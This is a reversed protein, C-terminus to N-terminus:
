SSSWPRLTKGRTGSGLCVLNAWRGLAKPLPRPPPGPAPDPIVGADSSPLSLIGVDNFGPSGGQSPFKLPCSSAKDELARQGNIARRVDRMEGQMDSMLRTMYDSVGPGSSPMSFHFGSNGREKRCKTGDVLQSWALADFPNPVPTCSSYVVLYLDPQSAKLEEPSSPLKPLWVSPQGAVKVLEGLMPKLKKALDTRAVAPMDRTAEMGRTACLMALNLVKYTPESARRLGLAVATKLIGIGNQSCHSSEWVMKPVYDVIATFDQASGTNHAGGRIPAPPAETSARTQTLLPAVREILTEEMDSPLGSSKLSHIVAAADKGKPHIKDLLLLLEKTESQLVQEHGRLGRTGALIAKTAEVRAAFIDSDQM